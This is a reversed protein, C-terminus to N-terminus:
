AGVKLVVWDDVTFHKMLWHLVDAVIVTYTHKKRQAAADPARAYRAQTPLAGGRILFEPPGFLSLWGEAAGAAAPVFTYRPKSGAAM